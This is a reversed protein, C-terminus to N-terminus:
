PVPERQGAGDAAGGTPSGAVRPALVAGIDLAMM